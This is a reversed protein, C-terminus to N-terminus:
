DRVRPPIVEPEHPIQKMDPKQAKPKKKGFILRKALKLIGTTTERTLTGVEKLEGSLDHTKSKIAERTDKGKKPAMSMGVASGVATGIIAGMIIKDVVSKNKDDEKAM